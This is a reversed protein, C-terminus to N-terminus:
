RDLTGSGPACVESNCCSCRLTANAILGLDGGLNGDGQWLGTTHVYWGNQLLLTGFDIDVTARIRNWIAARSPQKSKINWLTDSFYQVDFQVGMEELRGRAEDWDGLLHGRRDPSLEHRDAGSLAEPETMQCLAPRVAACLCGWGVCLYKLM